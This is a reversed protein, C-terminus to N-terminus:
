REWIQQLQHFLRDALRRNDTVVEARALLNNRFYIKKNYNTRLRNPLEVKILFSDRDNPMNSIYSVRGTLYGFETSPYGQLKIIVKQQIAIKGLGTQGAKMEGYYRANSPQIFFLPQGANLLQNEQLFGVYELTGDQSAEVVYRQIWEEVRSKLNLLSSYFGQEQEQITKQLDLLEKNKNHVSVDSSILQSQVQELGQQKNILKSKEQDLELPAIIKEKALQENIDHEKKMLAFDNEMLDQQKLLNNKLKALYNLDGQIAVKKKEYYGGAFIQSTEKLQTQFEQYTSQLEGLESLSPLPSSLITEVNGKGMESEARNIWKMLEIVQEHSATSQLYALYQGQTVQTNNAVLLKELRGETRTEMTKPANLAVIRLSGEIIDPYQVAFSIAAMSSLIALFVLNGNRILWHPKHSIIDNVEESVLTDANLGAPIDPTEIM